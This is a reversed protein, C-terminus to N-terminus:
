ADRRETSLYAAATLMVAWLAFVIGARWPTILHEVGPPLPNDGVVGSSPLGTGGIGATVNASRDYGAQWFVFREANDFPAIDNLWGLRGKSVVQSLMLLLKEVFLPWISSLVLALPLSRTLASIAAVLLVLLLLYGLSRLLAEYAYSSYAVVASSGADGMGVAGTNLKEFFDFNIRGRSDVGKLLLMSAATVALWMLTTVLLIVGTKAVFIEARRPFASFTVRTLGYRYEHGWSMAAFAAIITTVIQYPGQMSNVVEVFSTKAFTAPTAGDSQFVEATAIKHSVWTFFLSAAVASGAIWWTSRLTTARRWEYLFAARM